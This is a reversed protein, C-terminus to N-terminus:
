NRTQKEYQEAPQFPLELTFIAGLGPGASRAALTGGLEKAALASNHLGFGHGGKKTTFGYNFIRTLNEPAIGGGNDEVEVRVRGNDQRRLRVQLVKRKRGSDSLAYKANSVLNVLIQLLKHRDTQMLPIEDYDLRLDVGHRNLGANNIRIADAAVVALSVPETIGATKSYTQQLNIIEVMHSIHGNLEDLGDLLRQKEEELHRALGALFAPLRRGKEDETFYRALDDKHKELPAVAQSLYNVRLNQTRSKVSASIVGVSNLVNGVNHLVGSAVETMGVKRATELLKQHTKELEATRLRVREELEERAKRLEADRQQIQSLMENFGDALIGLESRAVKEVRISYDKKEAIIRSTQAMRLIPESISQRLRRALIYSVAAAGLLVLLLIPLYGALRERIEGLDSQLFVTGTKEGDLTIARFLRISHGSTDASGARPLPPPHFARGNGAREYSVFVRGERDYICAGTVHRDARLASLIEAAEQKGQFLLAATSNAGIVDALIELRREIARRSYWAENAAFVLSVLLLAAGSTLMMILTLQSKISRSRRIQM